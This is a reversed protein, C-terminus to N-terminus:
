AFGKKTTKQRKVTIPTVPTVDVTRTAVELTEDRELDTKQTYCFRFKFGAQQFPESVFSLPLEEDKMAEFGLRGLDPPLGPYEGEHRFWTNWLIVGGPKLLPRLRQLMQENLILHVGAILDFQGTLKELDVKPDFLDELFDESHYFGIYNYLPNKCKEAFRRCIAISVDEWSKYPNEVDVNSHGVFLSDYSKLKELDWAQKSGLEAAPVSAKLDEMEEKLKLNEETHNEL